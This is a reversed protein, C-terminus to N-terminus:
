LFFQEENAVHYIHWVWIPKSKGHYAHFVWTTSAIIENEINNLLNFLSDIVLEFILSNKHAVIKASKANWKNYNHCMCSHWM